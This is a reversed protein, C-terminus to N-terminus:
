QYHQIYFFAEQSNDTCLLRYSEDSIVDGGNKLILKKTEELDEVGFTCVWYEYKGKFENPIEKADAVYSKNQNFIKYTNNENQIFEWGFLRNYFTIISNIDSVHLESWSLHDPMNSSHTSQLYQGEYVTFGAGQPDRILAVKGFGALDSSMEVIGGFEVAQKVLIEINEVKIYTMWFHPMNMQQFKEPTKYLGTTEKTGKYALFYDNEEYYSWNFVSEYFRMSKSPSYTSLDAFIISNIDM